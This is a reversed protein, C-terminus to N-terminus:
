AVPIADVVYEPSLESGLWEWWEEGDDYSICHCGREADYASVRGAYCCDDGPWYVRVRAGVLEHECLQAHSAGYPALRGARVLMTNAALWSVTTVTGKRGVWRVLLGDRPRVRSVVATARYWEDPGPGVRWKAWVREGVSMRPDSGSDSDMRAALAERMEDRRTAAAVVNAPLSFFLSLLADNERVETTPASTCHMVQAVCMCLLVVTLLTHLHSPACTCTHAM